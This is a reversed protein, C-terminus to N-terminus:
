PLSLAEPFEQLCHRPPPLEEPAELRAHLSGRRSDYGEQGKSGGKIQPTLPNWVNAGVPGKIVNFCLAATSSTQEM